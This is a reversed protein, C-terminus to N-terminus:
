SSNLGAFSRDREKIEDLKTDRIDDRTDNPCRLVSLLRFPFINRQYHRLGFRSPKEVINAKINGMSIM